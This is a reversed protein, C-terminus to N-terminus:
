DRRRRGFIAAVLSSLYDRDARLQTLVDECSHSATELDWLALHARNLASKAEQLAEDTARM